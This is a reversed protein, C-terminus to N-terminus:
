TYHRYLISHLINKNGIEFCFVTAAPLCAPLVQFSTVQGDPLHGRGRGGPERGFIKGLFWKKWIVATHPM